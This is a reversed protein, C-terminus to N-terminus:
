KNKPPLDNVMKQLQWIIHGFIKKASAEWNDSNNSFQLITPSTTFVFTLDNYGSKHLVDTKCELFSWHTTDSVIGYSVVPGMDDSDDEFKRKQGSSITDLEVMNQQLSNCEMLGSTTVALIQSPDDKSVIM